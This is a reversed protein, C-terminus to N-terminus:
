RALRDRIQEAALRHGAATWHGDVPYNTRVGRAHERDFVRRLDICDQGDAALLTVLRETQDAVTGSGVLPPVIQVILAAGRRRCEAALRHLLAAALTLQARSADGADGPQHDRALRAHHRQAFRQKVANLFHSRAFLTAYGPIHRTLRLLKLTRSRPAPHQSLAGDPALSWLGSVVNDIFDNPSFTVVVLEAGFRQGEAVYWALQHATGTAAVGANVVEWRAAAPRAAANLATELLKAFTEEPAVGFGNTFSDGLCLIRRTDAPRPLAFVGDRLGQASIDLAIEYEPCAIFGHANPIQRIGVIRDYTNPIYEFRDVPVLLRTGSELLVLLLVGALVTKLVTTALRRPTM